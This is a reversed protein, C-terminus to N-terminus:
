NPSNHRRSKWKQYIVKNGPAACGDIVHVTSPNVGLAAAPFCSAKDQLILTGDLYLANDHLDTSPPMAFLEDLLTDPWIWKGKPEATLLHHLAVTASDVVTWGQAKFKELVTKPTAKIANVRVWRPLVVADRLEPPLLDKVTRAQRKVKLKTMEAKLRTRHAMVAEKLKGGCQVGRESILLDYLLVLAMNVEMRRGEPTKAWGAAEMVELLVARYKLTETVLAFVKRKETM